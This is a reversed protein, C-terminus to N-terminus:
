SVTWVFAVAVLVAVAACVAGALARVRDRRIDRARQADLEDLFAQMEEVTVKPCSLEHTQMPQVWCLPCPKVGVHRPLRSEPTRLKGCYCGGNRSLDDRCGPGVPAWPVRRTRLPWDALGAWCQGPIRDILAAIRWRLRDITKM